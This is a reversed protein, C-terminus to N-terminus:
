FGYRKFLNQKMKIFKNGITSKESTLKVTVPTGKLKVHKNEWEKEQCSSLKISYQGSLM